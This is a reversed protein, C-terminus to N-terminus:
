GAIQNKTTILLVKWNSTFNTMNEIIAGGSCAWMVINTSTVHIIARM